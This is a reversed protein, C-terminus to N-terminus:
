EQNELATASVRGPRKGKIIGASKAISCINRLGIAVCGTTIYSVGNHTGHSYIMVDSTKAIAFLSFFFIHAHWSCRSDLWLMPRAWQTLDFDQGVSYVGNSHLGDAFAVADDADGSWAQM